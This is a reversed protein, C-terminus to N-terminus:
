ALEGAAFPEAYGGIIRTALPVARDQGLAELAPAVTEPAGAIEICSPSIGGPAPGLVRGDLSYRAMRAHITAADLDPTEIVALTRDRGTAACEVRGVALAWIPKSDAAPRACGHDGFPLRAFVRPGDPAHLASATWWAQPQAPTGPWPLVAVVVQGATVAALADLSSASSQLPAHGGYQNRALDWLGELDPGCPVAVSFPGELRVMAGIIEHWLQVLVGKPFPGHHNAVLRRLMLAERSPRLFTAPREDAAAEKARGVALVIESRRMLLAQIEDDISDIAARLEALSTDEDTM